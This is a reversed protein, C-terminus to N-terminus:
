TRLAPASQQHLIMPVITEGENWKTRTNPRPAHRRDAIEPSTSSTLDFLVSVAPPVDREPVTREPYGRSLRAEHRDM